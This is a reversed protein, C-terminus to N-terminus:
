KKIPNNKKKRRKQYQTAHATEINQINVEKQDCQKCINERM